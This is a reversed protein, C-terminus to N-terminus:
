LLGLLLVAIVIVWFLCGFSTTCGEWLFDFAVGFGKLVWGLLGFVVFGIIILIIIGIIEM